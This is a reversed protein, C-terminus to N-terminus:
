KKGGKMSLAFQLNAAAQGYSPMLRLAESLQSVAADIDNLQLLAMGLENHFFPDNPEIELAKQYEAVAERIRGLNMLAKAMQFHTFPNRPQLRNAIEFHYLAEAPMGLLNNLTIGLNRHTGSDDPNLRLSENYEKVALEGKGEKEYAIGLINHAFSNDQTVALSHSYLTKDDKWYGIQMSAAAAYFALLAIAALHIAKRMHPFREALDAIRWSIAVFIGILPIYTYRDAIAQGGVQILGIVPLLTVLYFLVGVLLYPMRNRAMVAAILAAALVVLAIAAKWYPVPVLPYYAALNCPVVAKQVYILTSWLANALRMRLPWEAIDSITSKQACITVISMAASLAFFPIKEMLLKRCQLVRKDDKLGSFPLTVRKLPWVDFLLAIVPVTVLMPKAMLGLAFAAISLLYLRKDSNKAYKAYFIFTLLWFATSLVDKRETIWAVSEVHLPHLAFLAVVFASRWVAGTLSDLLYFLLATNVVHLAVNVLHFGM